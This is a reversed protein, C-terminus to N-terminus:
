PFLEGPAREVGSTPASGTTGITQPGTKAPGASGAEVGTGPTLPSSQYGSPQQKTQIPPPQKEPIQGSVNRSEIPSSVASTPTGGSAAEKIVSYWKEADASTHAKFSLEHSMAMASGVKGKSVDKGKLSFKDGNVGGLTCDPLYLSLDPTPDKRVDDDDNFQHM